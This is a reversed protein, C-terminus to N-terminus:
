SQPMHVGGVAIRPPDVAQPRRGFKDVKHANIVEAAELGVPRDRGVGVVARSPAQSGPGPSAMKSAM